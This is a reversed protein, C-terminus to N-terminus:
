ASRGGRWASLHEVAESPLLRRDYESFFIGNILETKGRAFEAVFAVTLNDAKLSELIEYIRLDDEPSSMKNADLWKQYYHIGKILDAKWQGYAQMQETFRKNAM